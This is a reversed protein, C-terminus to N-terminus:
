TLTTGCRCWTGYTLVRWKNQPHACTAPDDLLETGPAHKTREPHPKPRSPKVPLPAPEGQSLAILKPNACVAKLYAIVLVTVSTGHSEAIKKARNWIEDNVRMSRAKTVM